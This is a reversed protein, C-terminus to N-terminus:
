SERQLTVLHGAGGGFMMTQGPELAAAELVEAQELDENGAVWEDFTGRWAPDEDGDFTVTYIREM